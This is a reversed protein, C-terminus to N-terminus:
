PTNSVHVQHLLTIREGADTLTIKLTALAGRLPSGPDFTFSTNACDVHDALLDASTGDTDGITTSLSHESYRNLRGSECKFTIGGNALFVRRGQLSTGLEPPESSFPTLFVPSDLSVVSDASTDITVTIGPPTIVYNESSSSRDSNVSQAYVDTSNTSNIVLSLNGSFPLELQQLQGYLTFRADGAFAGDDWGFELLNNSGGPPPVIRYIGADLTNIMDITNGNTRISNPLARRIDRTMKQLTMEAADVLQTRRQLDNYGEIPHTIFNTIAIAIIGSIVIVVVLEILTFGDHQAPTVM